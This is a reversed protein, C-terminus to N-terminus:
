TELEPPEDEKDDSQKDVDEVDDDDTVTKILTQFDTTV